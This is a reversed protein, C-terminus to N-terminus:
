RGAQKRSTLALAVLGLVLVAMEIWVSIVHWRDFAARLPNDAPTASVSGMQVRLADMTGTVWFQSIFTLVVMAFVLLPAPRALAAFSRESAALALLYILGAVVGALHLRGLTVGVLAGAQDTSLTTFAAPAEIAGFYLISGVWAGLSFFELFRLLTSMGCM